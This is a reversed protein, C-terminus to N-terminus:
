RVFRGLRVATQGRKLRRSPMILVCEDYPTRVSRDGDRAIETGARTIVELGVFDQVFSFRDSEITVAQTVEVLRQAPPRGDPLHARIFDPDMIDCAGLFRLLAEKAVAVSRPDWHQGCEVLLANRESGPDGFPGYDRLRRGASHGSDSVVLAPYGVARAFRRGKEHPGCLVLPATAHQMSHIDLLLDTSDVIPRFERARALEISTRPSELVDASWLRNFDEDVFRSAAPNKPDFASFAAVNCFALTLAGRRPQAGSRFLFDLALAGCLENGHVIATVLVSPGPRGAQFRWVYDVGTNGRRYPSIDPPALNVPYDDVGDAM